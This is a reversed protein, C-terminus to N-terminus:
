APTDKQRQLTYLERYVECGAYVEEHSGQAIIRGKDMVIIQDANRMTSLRHAIMITTRNRTLRDLADYIQKESKSDLASTAEDLILIPADKLFARAIALRQKQGGSLSSGEEGIITELGNPLQEIFADAHADRIASALSEDSPPPHLGYAINARVTDNFLVVDQSVEAISHRLSQLTFERIDIGDIEIHGADVDYFRPLLAAITSKGSGSHGVLAVTRGAEITLSLNRIAPEHAGPYAFSVDTFRIGDRIEALKRKGSDPEDGEDLLAFISEAAALGRQLPQMANALRKAPSMLLGIAAFFAILHGATHQLEIAQLTAWFIIGSILIATVMEIAATNGIGALLVKQRFQRLPNGVSNFRRSEYAKGDFIKVVKQGKVMEELVHTMEGITDQNMHSFRRIRSSFFRGIYVVPPVVLFIILALRWNLYLAVALLGIITVTDKVLTTLTQTAANTVETVNYTVKSITEGTTARDYYSAPLAMLKNVMQNSIDLVVKGSTWGIFGYTAVSFVGRSIFLLILYLLSQKLNDIDKEVFGGDFLPKLLAPIAADSLGLLIMSVIGAIFAARYPKVYRLLRKYTQWSSPPTNMRANNTYQLAGDLKFEPTKSGAIRYVKRM